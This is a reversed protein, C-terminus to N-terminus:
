ILQRTISISELMHQIQLCSEHHKGQGIINMLELDQKSVLLDPICADVRNVMKEIRERQETYSRNRYTFLLVSM